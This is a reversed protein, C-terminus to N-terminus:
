MGEDLLRDKDQDSLADVMGQLRDKEEKQIGEDYSEEPTMVLTM